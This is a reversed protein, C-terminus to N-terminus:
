TVGKFGESLVSHIICTSLSMYGYAVPTWPEANIGDVVAQVPATNIFFLTYM